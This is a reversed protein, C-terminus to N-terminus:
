DEASVLVPTVTYGAERLLNIVGKEGALHGSGVAFFTPTESAYEAMRPIWKENRADLFTDTPLASSSPDSEVLEYLGEIDQAVYLESMQKMQAAGMEANHLFEVLGKAQDEYPISHFLELQDEVTELGYVEEEEAKAIEMLSGEVSAPEEGIVELVFVTSLMGPMWKKFLGAGVGMFGKLREDLLAYDEESLLDKLTVKGKMTVHKMMTRQMKPDDMDLELVLQGTEAFAEEVGEQLFMDDPSLIHFTGYLYSTQIDAGEIKWLLSKALPETTPQDGSSFGHASGVWVFLALAGLVYKATKM